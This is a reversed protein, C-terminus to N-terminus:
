GADPIVLEGPLLTAMLADRCRGRQRVGHRVTGDLVFGARRAVAWSTENGLVATWRLHDAGLRDFAAAAVLALARTMRGQGRASPALWYGVERTTLNLGIMGLLAAPAGVLRIGWTLETDGAWGTPSTDTAFTVADARTYPAPVLTWRQIEPDQCAAAIADVDADCPARLLVTADSLDFPEMHAISGGVGITWLRSATPADEM